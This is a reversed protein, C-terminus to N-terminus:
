GRQGSWLVLLPVLLGLGLATWIPWLVRAYKFALVLGLLATAILAVSMVVVLARFLKPSGKQRLAGTEPYIQDTHVVRLKQM